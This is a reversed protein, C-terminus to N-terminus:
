FVARWLASISVFKRFAKNPRIAMAYRLRNVEWGIAICLGTKKNIGARGSASCKFPKIPGRM